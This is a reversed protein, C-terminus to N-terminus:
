TSSSSGLGTVGTQTTQFAGGGAFRGRRALAAREIAEQSEQEELLTGRVVQNETAVDGRGATLGRRRAATGFGERAQPQEIGAMQLEEAFDATINFAQRGAEAGIQSAVFQKNLLPTAREPDLFYAAL